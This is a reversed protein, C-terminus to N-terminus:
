FIKEKKFLVEAKFLDGDVTVLFEGGQAEVLGKAISLGLGNGELNRSSDGRVFREVFAEGDDGLLEKSTNKVSLIVQEEKEEISVYVRTGTLSYKCANNLLNDLVRWFKRGDAMIYFAGEAKKVFLTLGVEQMKHEYEGIMQTLFVGVEFRELQIEVNGTSVKSVELLDDMLKKLRESQRHLVLAYEKLTTNETAEKEILDSYNIISTLPTKIDHSVNTILETKMHESRVREEVAATMGEGIKNLNEAVKKIDNPMHITSTQYYLDGQALAQSTAELRRLCGAIYMLYLTFILMIIMLAVVVIASDYAGNLVTMFVVIMSLNIGLLATKWVVPLEILIDLVINTLKKIYKYIQYVISKKWIDSVRVRIVINHIVGSYFLFVIFIECLVITHYELSQHNMTSSLESEVVFPMSIILASLMLILMTFLDIPIKALISLRPADTNEKMGATYLLYSYSLLYLGVSLIAIMWIWYKLEYSFKLFEVSDRYEDQMPYTEDIRLVVKCIQTGGINDRGFFTNEFVLGSSTDRNGTEFILDQDVYVQIDYNKESIEPIRYVLTDQMYSEWIMVCDDYALEKQEMYILESSSYKYVGVNNMYFITGISFVSLLLSLIFIISAFVKLFTNIQIKNRKIHM